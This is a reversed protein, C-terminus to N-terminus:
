YCQDNNFYYNINIKKFNKTQLNVLIQPKVSVRRLLTPNYSDEEYDGDVSESRPEREEKEVVIAIVDIKVGETVAILSKDDVVEQRETIFIKSTFAVYHTFYSSLGDPICYVGHTTYKHM